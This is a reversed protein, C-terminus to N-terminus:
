AAPAPRHEAPSSRERERRRARDEQEQATGIYRVRTGMLHDFFPHTVCWNMNQNRGLHHDAHWPLHERAWTPDRHAKKHVRYYRWMFFWVTGTFWPFRLLLPAHLFAGALLATVEKTQADWARFLPRQYQADAMDGRRSERHHEHWHFSWFSNRNRGLGHLVHKHILWESANIYLWGIPVGIM